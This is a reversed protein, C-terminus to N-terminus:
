SPKRDRLKVYEDWARGFHDGAERCEQWGDLGDECPEVDDSGPARAAYIAADLDAGFGITLFGHRDRIDFAGGTITAGEWQAPMARSTKEIRIIAPESM